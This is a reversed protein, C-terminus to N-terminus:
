ELPLAHIAERVLAASRQDFCAGGGAKAARERMDEAATQRVAALAIPNVSGALERKAEALAKDTQRLAEERSALSARALRADLKAEALARALSQAFMVAAKPTQVDLEDWTGDDMQCELVLGAGYSMVRFGCPDEWVVEPGAPEPQDDRVTASRHPSVTWSEKPPGERNGVDFVEVEGLNLLAHVATSVAFYRRGAHEGGESVELVPQETGEEARCVLLRLTHPHGGETVEGLVRVVPAPPASLYKDSALAPGEPAAPTPQTPSSPIRYLHRDVRARTAVAPCHTCKAEQRGDSPLDGDKTDWHHDNDECWDLKSAEPTPEPQSEAVHPACAACANAKGTMVDEHVLCALGHPFSCRPEEALAPVEPTPTPAIRARPTSHEPAFLPTGAIACHWTMEDTMLDHECRRKGCRSCKTEATHEGGGPGTPLTLGLACNADVSVSDLDALAEDLTVKPADALLWRCVALLGSKHRLNVREHRIRELLEFGGADTEWSALREVADRYKRADDHDAKRNPCTADREGGKAADYAARLARTMKATVPATTNSNRDWPAVRVMAEAGGAAEMAALVPGVAELLGAPTPKATPLSALISRIRHALDAHECVEDDDPYCPPSCEQNKAFDEVADEVEAVRATLADREATLEEVRAHFGRAEQEWAEARENASHERATLTAVEQRAADRELRASEKWATERSLRQELDEVQKRLEKRDQEAATAAVDHAAREAEVRELEQRAADRESEARAKERQADALFAREVRLASSIVDETVQENSRGILRILEVNLRHNDAELGPVRAAATALRSLPSPPDWLLHEPQSGDELAKRVKEVDRAVDEPVSTLANFAAHIADAAAKAVDHGTDPNLLKAMHLELEQTTM